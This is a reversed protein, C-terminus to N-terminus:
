HTKLSKRPIILKENKSLNQLYVNKFIPDGKWLWLDGLNEYAENPELFGVKIMSCDVKRVIMIPNLINEEPNLINEASQIRLTFM